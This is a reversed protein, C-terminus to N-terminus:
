EKANLYQYDSLTSEVGQTHGVDYIDGPCLQHLIQKDLSLETATRAFRIHAQDEIIFVHQKRSAQYKKSVIKFTPANHTLHLFEALKGQAAQRIMEAHFDNFDQLDHCRKIIEAAKIRAICNKNSVQIAFLTEGPVSSLQLIEVIKLPKKRTSNLLSKYENVVRHLMTLLINERATSPSHNSKM